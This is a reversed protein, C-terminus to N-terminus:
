VPELWTMTTRLLTTALGVVTGLSLMFLGFALVIQLPMAVFLVQFSPMLRNLVGLLLYLLLSFLVVPAAMRLGTEIAEGGLRVLVEVLGALDLSGTTELVSFSTTLAQLVLLHADSVVIVVLALIALFNGTVTGQTAEQPDFFAATALGSQMAVLSGGFHIAFMVLRIIAGILLGTLVEAIVLLTLGAVDTPLVLRGSMPLGVLLAIALAIGLRVRSVVYPEGFAPLVMLAAGVRCFVLGIVTIERALLLDLPNM